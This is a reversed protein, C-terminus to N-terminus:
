LFTKTTWFKPNAEFDPPVTILDPAKLKAEWIAEGTKVGLKKALMNKALIIGHRNTPDGAVAVPLHRIEPRYLCEVSAYFNNMDIHLITRMFDRKRLNYIVVFLHETFTYRTILIKDLSCLSFMEWIQFNFKNFM